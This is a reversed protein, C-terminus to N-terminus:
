VEVGYSSLSVGRSAYLKEVSRFYAFCRITEQFSVRNCADYWRGWDQNGSVIDARSKVAAQELLRIRFKHARHTCVLLWVQFGLWAFMALALIVFASDIATEM